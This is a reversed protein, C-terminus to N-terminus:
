GDTETGVDPEDDPLPNGEADLTQEPLIGSNQLSANPDQNTGQDQSPDSQASPDQPSQGASSQSPDADANPDNESLSVQIETDSQIPTEAEVSQWKVKGYGDWKLSIGTLQWFATLDKLTWGIMDPMNLSAGDTLLLVNDNSNITTGAKPFQDVISTGDGLVITNVKKDAMKQQAYALSHNVLSPMEYSEWKEYDDTQPTSTGGTVNNAILAAQMITQFPEASYDLYNASQMGWYVMIKPDSAPAAAMISSTFVKSDYTGTEERFIEGTGTKAAMDVGDMAFKEGSMGPDLVTVLIDKVKNAASASIPTGVAEPEFKEVIEGTSADTISDVVYPKMMVGDNFIATYAQALELVTTSTAQGFGSSLYASADQMNITGPRESVYPIETASGFGFKEMYSEYTKQDLYNSLLECIGVNSSHALGEEFTLTGYDTGLADRIPPFDTAAGNELRIPKGKDDVTYSFMGARYLTNRPYVGADMAAAYVFPKMVSGAEYPHESVWDLYNPIELHKNQDFTPYSAWALIKGTEVEMVLCWAAEAKNKDMTIQMQQEVVEQLSSDLTLTVNKGDSPDKLIRTTGPLITGKLTQQYQRLGDEGSLEENLSSELGMIGKIGQSEEDYAAFGLLNSSFPTTPYTRKTTEIFSLGPIKMAELTDKEERTIRKTGPGLETQARGNEMADEIFGAIKDADVTEGLVSAIAKAAADPDEIYPSAYDQEEKELQASVQEYTGDEQAQELLQEKRRQSSKEDNAKEEETRQDFSAILTYATTEEALINHNRDYITGREGPLVSNVISSRIQSDLVNHGSWIHTKGIMIYLINAIVLVACLMLILLTGMLSRNAQLARVRKKRTNQVKKM